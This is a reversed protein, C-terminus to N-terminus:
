TNSPNEAGLISNTVLPIAEHFGHPLTGEEAMNVAHMLLFALNDLAEPTLALSNGSVAVSQM